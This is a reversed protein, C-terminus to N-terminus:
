KTGTCRPRNRRSKWIALATTTLGLLVMTNAADPIAPTANGMFVPNSPNGTNLNGPGTYTLGNDEGFATYPISTPVTLDSVNVTFGSLTNGTPLLTYTPEIWLDNYPGNQSTGIDWYHLTAYTSTNYGAPAGSVGGNAFVTFMYIDFGLTGSNNITFDLTYNGSSGSVTYTVIPVAMLNSNFAGLGLMMLLGAGLRKGPILKM